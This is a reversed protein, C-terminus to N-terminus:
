RLLHIEFCDGIRLRPALNLWEFSVIKETCFWFKEPSASLLKRFNRSGDSFGFDNVCLIRRFKAFRTFFQGTMMSGSRRATGVCITHSLSRSASDFFSSRSHQQLRAQVSHPPRIGHFTVTIQSTILIRRVTIRLVVRLVLLEPQNSSLIDDQKKSVGTLVGDTQYSLIVQFISEIHM